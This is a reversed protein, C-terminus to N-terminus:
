ENDTDKPPFEDLYHQACSACDCYPDNMLNCHNRSQCAEDCESSCIDMPMPQGCGCDCMSEDKHESVWEMLDMLAQIAGLAHSTLFVSSSPNQAIDAYKRWEQAIKDGIRRRESLVGLEEINEIINDTM